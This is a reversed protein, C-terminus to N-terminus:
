VYNVDESSDLRFEIKSERIKIELNINSNIFDVVENGRNKIQVSILHDSGEGKHHDDKSTFRHFSSHYAM